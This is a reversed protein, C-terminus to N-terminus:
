NSCCSLRQTAPSVCVVRNEALPKAALHLIGEAHLDAVIPDVVAQVPRFITHARVLIIDVGAIVFGDGRHTLLGFRVAM